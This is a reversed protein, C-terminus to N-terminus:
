LVLVVVEDRHVYRVGLVVEPAEVVAHRPLVGETGIEYPKVLHLGHDDTSVEVYCVLLNVQLVGLAIPAMGAEGVLLTTLERLEEPSAEYVGETEEM